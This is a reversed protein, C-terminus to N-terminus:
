KFLGTSWAALASGGSLVYAIGKAFNIEKDVRQIHDSLDKLTQLIERNVQESRVRDSEYDSMIRGVQSEIVSMRSHISEKM